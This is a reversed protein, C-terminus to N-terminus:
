SQATFVIGITLRIGTFLSLRQLTAEIKANMHESDTYQSVASGDTEYQSQGSYTVHADRRSTPWGGPFGTHISNMRTAVMGKGAEM